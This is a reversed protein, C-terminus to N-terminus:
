RLGPWVMRTRCIIKGAAAFNTCSILTHRAYGKRFPVKLHARSPDKMQEPLFDWSPRSGPPCEIGRYDDIHPIRFETGHHQHLRADDEEEILPRFLRAM